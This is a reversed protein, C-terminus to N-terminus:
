IMEAFGVNGILEEIAYGRYRIEGPKIDIIETRWWDVVQCLAEFQEQKNAAINILGDGTHFSGSPSATFNDNGAPEPIKGAVLYNSVVWGM